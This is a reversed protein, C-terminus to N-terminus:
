LWVAYLIMSLSAILGVWHWFEARRERRKRRERMGKLVRRDREVCRSLDAIDFRNNATV